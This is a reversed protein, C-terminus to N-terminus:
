GGAMRRVAVTNGNAVQKADTARGVVEYSKDSVRTVGVTGARFLREVDDDAIAVKHGNLEDVRTIKTKSDWLGGLRPRILFFTVGEAMKKEIVARMAEDNEEDWTITVDGTVNLLTMSRM